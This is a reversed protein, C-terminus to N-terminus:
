VAAELGASDVIWRGAAQLRLMYKPRRPAGSAQRGQAMVRLAGTAVASQLEFTNEWRYASVSLPTFAKKRARSFAPEVRAGRSRRVEPQTVARHWNDFERSEDLLARGSMVLLGFGQEEACLAIAEQDNLPAVGGGPGVGGSPFLRVAHTHAKMDWVFHHSYDFVTAGYTQRAQPRPPAGMGSHLARLGRYEFYFGPWEMQRWQSYGDDRMEIVASRGDWSGEAFEAALLSVLMRAEGVPDPGSREAGRLLREAGALVVNLGELTITYGTSACTETWVVGFRRALAEGLDVKSLAIDLGLDARIALNEFVSKREKGGPGLVEPGSGTLQSIRNVAEIKSRAPTFWSWERGAFQPPRASMQAVPRSLFHDSTAELLHNLGELTVQGTDTVAVDPWAVGLADAIEGGLSGNTVHLPVALGLVEALARLTRKPGRTESVVGGVLSGIRAEAESM